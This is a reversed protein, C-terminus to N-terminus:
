DILPPYCGGLLVYNVNSNAVLHSVLSTIAAGKSAGVVTISGPHVGSKLLDKVRAVVMRAYQAPDTDRPRQESIVVFGSSDLAELIQEYQYEGYEPSIAPLGQDEIIKGHLYFLYRQAPDIQAPFGYKDSLDVYSGVTQEVNEPPTSTPTSTSSATLPAPEEGDSPSSGRCSALSLGILILVAALFHAARSTLLRM